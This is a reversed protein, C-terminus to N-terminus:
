RDTWVRNKKQTGKTSDKSAQQLRELPKKRTEGWTQGEQTSKVNPEEGGVKKTSGDNAVGNKV